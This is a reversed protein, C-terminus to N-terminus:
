VFALGIREELITSVTSMTRGWPVRGWMIEPIEVDISGETKVLNNVWKNGMKKRQDLLM